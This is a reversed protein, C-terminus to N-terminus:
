GGRCHHRVNRSRSTCIPYPKSQQRHAHRMLVFLRGHQGGIDLGVVEEHIAHGSQELRHSLRIAGWCRGKSRTRGLLPKFFDSLHHLNLWREPHPMMAPLRSAVQQVTTRLCQELLRVCSGLVSKPARLLRLIVELTKHLM